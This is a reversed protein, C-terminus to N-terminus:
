GNQNGRSLLWYSIIALYALYGGFALASTM